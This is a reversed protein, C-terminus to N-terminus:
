EHYKYVHLFNSNSGVDLPNVNDINKSQHILWIAKRRKIKLDRYIKRLSLNKGKNERLYVEVINEPKESIVLKM